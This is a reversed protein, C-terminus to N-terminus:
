RILLFNTESQQIMKTTFSGFFFGHLKGHSFAGMATIDINNKQQYDTLQKLTDGKLARTIITSNSQSLINKADLTLQTAIDDDNNISVIHIELPQKYITNQAIMKLARKSTPSGNYAFLVKKPTNFEKKVIFVPNNTARISQELHYGLGNDNLQHDTGKSGLMVLAIEDKLDEIAEPLTGHRLKKVVERLGNDILVQKANNIIEKGRAILLKSQQREEESLEKLLERRINPTLNGEHHVQESQHSHEITHLLKITLGNSKALWIAHQLLSNTIVSGDIGVLIYKKNM